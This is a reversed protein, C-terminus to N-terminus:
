LFAAVEVNFREALLRALRKSIARRGALIDSILTQSAIQELDKQKLNNQDILFRLVEKPEVDPIRVHENEWHEILELALEYMSYLEHSEDEVIEVLAGAIEVVREYDAETRIVRLGVDREFEAWIKALEPIGGSLALTTMKRKRGQEM